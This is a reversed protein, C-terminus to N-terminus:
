VITADQGALYQYDGGNGVAKGELQLKVLEISGGSLGLILKDEDQLFTGPEIEKSNLKAEYVKLRLKKDQLEVNTWAIPWPYFARVMRCAEIPSNDILFKANEKAIKNKDAFTAKSHDQEKPNIKGSYWMPLIEILLRAGREALVTKLSETTDNDTIKVVDSAVIPGDDLGTTMVPITVGTINKGELIAMPIPVAGRLEPLLSGHVNLCKFKPYDITKQPLLQGYDAVIILEPKEKTLIGEEQESYKKPQYVKVDKKDKLFEAVPVKTMIQKRGAPKDPQTVVATVNIYPFNLLERIIPVAFEGSGFFITKVKDM